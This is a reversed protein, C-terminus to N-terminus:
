SALGRVWETVLTTKGYGASASVLTLKKEQQWADNLMQILRQRPVLNKRAPPTYLKTALLNPSM